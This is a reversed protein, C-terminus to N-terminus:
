FKFLISMSIVIQSNDEFAGTVQGGGPNPSNGISNNFTQDEAMIYGSALNITYSNIVM